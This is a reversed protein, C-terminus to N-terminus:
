ETDETNYATLAVIPPPTQLMERIKVTAEFGDMVPMNCDMLILAYDNDNNKLVEIAEVGNFAKVCIVNPFITTLLQEIVMLNFINDDVILIKKM